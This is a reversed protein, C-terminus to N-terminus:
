TVGPFADNLGLTTTVWLNLVLSLLLFVWIRVWYERRVSCLPHLRQLVLSAEDSVPKFGILWWYPSMYSTWPLSHLCQVSWVSECGWLVLPAFLCSYSLSLLDPRIFLLASKEKGILRSPKSAKGSFRNDYRGKNLLISLRNPFSCLSIPLFADSSKGRQM